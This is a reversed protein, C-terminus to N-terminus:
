GDKELEHHSCSRPRAARQPLTLAHLAHELTSKNLTATPQSQLSLSVRGSYLAGRPGLNRRACPVANADCVATPCCFVFRRHLAPTSSVRLSRTTLLKRIPSPRSRLLSYAPRPSDDAVKEPAKLSWRPSHTRVWAGWVTRGDARLRGRRLGRGEEECAWDVWRSQIWAAFVGHCRHERVDGVWRCPSVAGMVQRAVATERAAHKGRCRIEERPAESRLLAIFQRGSYKREARRSAPNM